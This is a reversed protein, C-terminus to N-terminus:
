RERQKQGIIDRRIVSNASFCEVIYVSDDRFKYYLQYYEYEICRFQFNPVVM